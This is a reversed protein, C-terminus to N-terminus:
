HVGSSCKCCRLSTGSYQSSWLSKMLTEFLKNPIESSSIRPCRTFLLSNTRQIAFNLCNLIEGLGVGSCEYTRVELHRMQHPSYQQGSCRLSIRLVMPCSCVAPPYNWCSSPHTLSRLISRLFHDGGLEM